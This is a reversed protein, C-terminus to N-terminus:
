QEEIRFPTMCGCKACSIIVAKGQIEVPTKKGFKHGCHHCNCGGDWNCDGVTLRTVAALNKHM